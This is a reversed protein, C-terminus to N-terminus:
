HTHLTMKRDSKEGVNSRGSKETQSSLMEREIGAFLRRRERGKESREHSEGRKKAWLLYPLRGENIACSPGGRREGGYIVMGERERASLM